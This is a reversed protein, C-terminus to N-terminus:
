RLEHFDLISGDEHFKIYFHFARESSRATCRRGTSNNGSIELSSIEKWGSAFKVADIMRRFAQSCISCCFLMREGDVEAWYEGWTADCLKCGRRNNVEM